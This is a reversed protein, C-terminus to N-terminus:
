SVSGSVLPTQTPAQAGPLDEATIALTKPHGGAPFAVIGPKAGLIGLSVPKGGDVTWLQYTRGDALAPLAEAFLYGNGDRDEVARVTPGAGDAALTGVSSTPDTIARQARARVQEPVPLARQDDLKGQQRVLLGTLTAIVFAAAAALALAAPRPRRRPRAQPRTASTSRDSASSPLVSLRPLTPPATSTTSEDGADGGFMASSVRDWLGDPMTPHLEDEALAVIAAYYRDVEARAEPTQALYAEIEAREDADVADLAYAGLMADHDDRRAMM